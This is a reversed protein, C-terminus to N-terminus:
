SFDSSCKSPFRLSTPEISFESNMQLDEEFESRKAPPEPHSRCLPTICNLSACFNTAHSEIRALENSSPNQYTSPYVERIYDKEHTFATWPCPLMDRCYLMNTDLPHIANEKTVEAHEGM